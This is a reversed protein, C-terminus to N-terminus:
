EDLQELEASGLLQNIEDMLKEDSTDSIKAIINPLGLSEREIRIGEVLMKLATSMNLKKQNEPNDLFEFSIQQLQNGIKAHRELMAVKEKTAKETMTQAVITDLAEARVKFENIWRSLTMVVPIEFGTVEKPEIM